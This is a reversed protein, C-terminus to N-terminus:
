AQAPPAHLTNGRLRTASEYWAGDGHRPRKRENARRTVLRVLKCSACFAAVSIRSAFSKM